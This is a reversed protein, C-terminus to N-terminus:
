NFTFGYSRKLAMYKLAMDYEKSLDIGIDKKPEIRKFGVYMYSVLQLGTFIGEISTLTYKQTPDNIDLGQRGKFAIEFSIKKIEDYSKKEYFQLAHICYFMADTRFGESKLNIVAIERLLDRANESIASKDDIQLTKKLFDNANDLDGLNFYLLGLGYTTNSDRPNIDFSKKLCEIGKAYEGEKGYLAGLNRLAYSNSSDLELANLFCEKAKSNNGTKSYAYGIAVYVNSNDKELEIIRSLTKIALDPKGIETYCMGLNYLLNSDDPDDSILQELVKSAQDFQRNQFLQEAYQLKDMKTM